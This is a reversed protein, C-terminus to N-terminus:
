LVSYIARCLGATYVNETPTM